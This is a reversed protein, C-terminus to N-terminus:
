PTRREQACCHLTGQAMCINAADGTRGELSVAGRGTEEAERLAAVVAQAHAVEEPRQSFAANVVELQKPHISQKGGFGLGRAIRTM